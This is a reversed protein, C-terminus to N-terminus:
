AKAQAEGDNNDLQEGVALALLEYQAQTPTQHAEIINSVETMTLNSGIAFAAIWLDFATWAVLRLAERLLRTYDADPHPTTM